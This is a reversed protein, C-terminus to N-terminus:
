RAEGGLAEGRQATTVLLRHRARVVAGARTRSIGSSEGPPPAAAAEVFTPAEDPPQWRAPEPEQAPVSDPAAPQWGSATFVGGLELEDAYVENALADAGNPDFVEGGAPWAPAPAEGNQAHAWASAQEAADYETWVPESAPPAAGNESWVPESAPQAAGNETWAPESAPQAAGNETWAPEGAPRARETRRGSRRRLPM